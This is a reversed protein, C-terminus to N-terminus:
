ADVSSTRVGRTWTAAVELGGSLAVVDADYGAALRGKRGGVGAVRAPVTSAMRVVDALSAIGWGVVNRVVADMTAASGAITGDALLVRGGELRAEEDGTRFSGAELGAPAVGDTVLAIRELGFAQFMM